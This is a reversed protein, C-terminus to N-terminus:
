RRSDSGLVRSLGFAVPRRQHDHTWLAALTLFLPDSPAGVTRRDVRPLTFRFTSGVGALGALMAGVQQKGAAVEAFRLGLHQPTGNIARSTEHREHHSRPRISRRLDAIAAEVEALLVALRVM